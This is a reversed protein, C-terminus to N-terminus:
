KKLLADYANGNIPDVLKMVTTAEKLEEIPVESYIDLMEESKAESWMQVISLNPNDQTVKAIDRLGLIINARAFEPDNYFNDLGLRYYKYLGARYPAYRGNLMDTVIWYRNRLNKEAAKWGKFAGADNASVVNTLDLAKQLYKGGGNESYTDFDSGILLYAYYGLVHSLNDTFQNENFEIAQFEQYTFLFQNDIVNLVTSRYDSNYIPRKSIITISASYGNEGVQDLIGIFISCEIREEDTFTESTWKRTNMFERISNELTKFVKQETQVKSVDPAIVTVECNLEQASLNLGLVVLAFGLLIKKIM